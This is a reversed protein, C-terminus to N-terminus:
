RKQPIRQSRLFHGYSAVCCLLFGAFAGRFANVESFGLSRLNDIALGVGWQVSFIGIFLILNFGSLARGAQAPPFAMGVAPQSLSVCSCGVCYLALLVEVRSQLADGLFVLLALLIFSIPLGVAIIVDARVGRQALRPSALGWIWFTFLMAVNIWFFGTAAQHPTYGAVRTMWPVVWLTQMALLGGYCFFGVPVMRRFYPHHWVESYSAWVGAPALSGDAARNTVPRPWAPVQWILTLIAMSVLAALGWFMPRWGILPMLWQVPLSSAVMGLSGTMLMWSNARLQAPVDFWRRYATLPAMLCASVGVGCLIRAALLGAFGDAQSFALCGVVAIILFLTLIKRPGYRDLWTGLPLQTASFGLFYGGALLGLDSASLSFEQTLTPSLTATITRILASFFYSFAFALFVRIAQGPPLVDTVLRASADPIIPASVLRM